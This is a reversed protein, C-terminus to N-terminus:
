SVPHLIIFEEKENWKIKLGITQNGDTMMCGSCRSEKIIQKTKKDLEETGSMQGSLDSAQYEVESISESGIYKLTLKKNESKQNQQSIIITAEWNKSKGAFSMYNVKVINDMIFFIGIVLAIGLLLWVLRKM